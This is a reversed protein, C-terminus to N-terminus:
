IYVHWSILDLLEYMSETQLEFLSASIFWKPVNSEFIINFIQLWDDGPKHIVRDYISIPVVSWSPDALAFSVGAASRSNMIMVFACLPYFLLIIKLYKNKQETREWHNQQNACWLESLQYESYCQINSLTCLPRVSEWLRFIPSTFIGKSQRWIM